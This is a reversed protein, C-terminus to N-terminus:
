ATANVCFARQAFVVALSLSEPVAHQSLREVVATFATPPLEGSAGVSEWLDRVLKRMPAQVWADSVAKAM